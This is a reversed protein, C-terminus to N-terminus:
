AVRRMYLASGAYVKSGTGSSTAQSWQLKVAGSTSGMTLIGAPRAVLKTSVAGAGGSSVTQALALHAQWIAVAANTGDSDTKSHGVWNLASGSPGAFTMKFGNASGLGLAGFIIHGFVMYTANVDPTLTLEDDDQLVASSTVTEDSGKVVFKDLGLITRLDNYVATGWVSASIITGDVPLVTSLSVTV